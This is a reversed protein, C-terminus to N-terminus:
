HVLPYLSQSNVQLDRTLNGPAGFRRAFHIGPMVNQNVLSYSLRLAPWVVQRTHRGRRIRLSQLGYFPAMIIIIDNREKLHTNKRENPFAQYSLIILM